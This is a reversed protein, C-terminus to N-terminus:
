ARGACPLRRPCDRIPSARCQNRRISCSIVRPVPNKEGRIEIITRKKTWPLQDCEQGEMDGILRPVQFNSVQAVDQGWQQTREQVHGAFPADWDYSEKRSQHVFTTSIHSNCYFRGLLQLRHSTDLVTFFFHKRHVKAFVAEDM